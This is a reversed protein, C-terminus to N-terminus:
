AKRAKREKTVRSDEILVIVAAFLPLSWLFITGVTDVM